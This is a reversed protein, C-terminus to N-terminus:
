ERLSNKRLAAPAAAVESAALVIIRAGSGKNAAVGRIAALSRTRNPM